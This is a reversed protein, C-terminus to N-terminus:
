LISKIQLKVLRRVKRNHLQKLKEHTDSGMTLLPVLEAITKEGNILILLVRSKHTLLPDRVKLANLGKETKKLIVNLNEFDM